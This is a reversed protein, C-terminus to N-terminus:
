ANSSRRLTRNAVVDLVNRRPEYRTASRVLVVIYFWAVGDILEFIAYGTHLAVSYPPIPAVFDRIGCAGDLSSAVQKELYFNYDTDACFIEARNNGRVIVHQPQDPIVYRPLRAM